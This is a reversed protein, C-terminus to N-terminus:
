HIARFAARRDLASLERQEREIEQGAEREMKELLQPAHTQFHALAQDFVSDLLQPAHQAAQDIMGTLERSIDADTRAHELDLGLEKYQSTEAKSLRFRGPNDIAKLM